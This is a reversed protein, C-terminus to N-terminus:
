NNCKFADNSQSMNKFNNQADLNVISQGKNNIISICQGLIWNGKADILMPNKVGDYIIHPVNELFAKGIMRSIPDKSLPLGSQREYSNDHISIASPFPDYMKDTFPRNTTYYSIILTGATQNNIFDNQYAEVEKTALIMFGTGSPVAAVVNGKPAFNVYNNDHIKNNHVKVQGGRKQILDPLDFVLIGGTNEYAENEFVDAHISNEIEIGAVNHYAKSNKVIIEKSQGVYIGADSAGVSVCHDIMVHECQVPYLGYGGNEPGPTGTWEVKVDRFDIGNVHMAKIADGKANQVTLGEILIDSCDNIRLGEAGDTQDKFNLITKDMGKGRIIINKKGDMSLTNTLTFVGEPLEIVAGTEALIFQTQYKKQFDKQALAVSCFLFCSVIILCYLKM